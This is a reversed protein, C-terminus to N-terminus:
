QNSHNNGGGLKEIDVNKYSEQKAVESPCMVLTAVNRLHTELDHNCWTLPTPMAIVSHRIMRAKFWGEWGGWHGGIYVSM